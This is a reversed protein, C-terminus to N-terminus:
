MRELLKDALHEIRQALWPPCGCAILDEAEIEFGTFDPCDQTTCIWGYGEEDETSLNAILPENCHDCTLVNQINWTSISQLKDVAALANWAEELASCNCDSDGSIARARQADSQHCDEYHIGDPDKYGVGDWGSM